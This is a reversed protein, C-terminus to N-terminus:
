RRGRRGRRGRPCPSDRDEAPVAYDTSEIRIAMGFLLARTLKSQADSLIRGFTQRSIGMYEAAQEQYLGEDFVLRMAELEDATIAIEELARLPAGAPKFYRNPPMERIYRRKKPRTM